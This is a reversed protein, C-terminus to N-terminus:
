DYFAELRWEKRAKDCVLLCSVIVGDSDTAMVDWEEASWADVSWWCGSTRWPGYTASVYYNGEPSRFAVLKGGRMTIHVPVPPRMRRLALRSQEQQLAHRQVKANFDEMCFSGPQHTDELVPSGVRDDGVLAKLRAITVDLRSPEPTQPAFLGLQVKSSQAAEASLRLATVAARPPRAATELQLLKLLFKRDISPLAPRISFPHTQGGELKMRGFIAAIAMARSAARKVLCDIMRDGIFLLSEIQEIPTDFECFESLTFAPEIPQLHHAHTGRALDRWIKAGQGLRAILEVVPLAALEGLTRIGWVTLIEAHEDPLDLSHISLPAMVSAEEGASIVTIGRTAAAKIRAVHFNTSIAISARLGKTHLSARIRRALEEPPGFLKETGAIDLVCACATGACVDEIRPSFNAACELLVNRASAEAEISRHILVLGDIAEAELRTLNLEAGRKNAHTNISCVTELPARGDLIAVPKGRLDPRVRLLAQVPFERAHICAYLEGSM